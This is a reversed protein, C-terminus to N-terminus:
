KWVIRQEWVSCMEQDAACYCVLGLAMGTAYDMFAPKLAKQDVVLNGTGKM